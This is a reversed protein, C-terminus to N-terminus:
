VVQAVRIRASQSGVALRAGVPAAVVSGDAETASAVQAIRENGATAALTDIVSVTAAVLSAVAVLAHVRAAAGRSGADAADPGAAVSAIM